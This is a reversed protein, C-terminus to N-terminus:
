RPSRIRRGRKEGGTMEFRSNEFVDVDSTDAGALLRVLTPQGAPGDYVQIDEYVSTSIEHTLGDDYVLVADAPNVAVGFGFLVIIFMVKKRM